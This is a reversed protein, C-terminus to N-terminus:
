TYLLVLRLWSTSPKVDTEQYKSPCKMLIKEAVFM